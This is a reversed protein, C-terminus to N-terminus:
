EVICEIYSVMSHRVTEASKCMQYAFHTIHLLYDDTYQGKYVWGGMERDDSGMVHSLYVCRPRLVTLNLRAEM